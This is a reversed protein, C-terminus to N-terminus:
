VKAAPHSEMYTDGFREVIGRAWTKVNGETDLCDDLDIGALSDSKTFVFGIGAYGYPSARLTALAKEYTTWTRPDTSSAKRGRLSYPVKTGHEARWLVRQALETLSDPLRFDEALVPAVNM